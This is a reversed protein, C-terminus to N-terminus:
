PRPSVLGTRRVPRSRETRVRARAADLAGPASAPLRRRVAVARRLVGPQRGHRLGGRGRAARAAPARHPRRSPLEAADAKVCWCDVRRGGPRVLLAGAEGVLWVGLAGRELSSGPAPTCTARRTASSTASCASRPGSPDARRGAPAARVVSAGRAAYLAPIGWAHVVALAAVPFSLPELALAPGRHRSSRCPTRSRPARGPGAARPAAPRRRRAPALLRGRDRPPGAGAAMVDLRRAAMPRGARRRDPPAPHRPGRRPPLERVQEAHGEGTSVIAFYGPDLEARFAAVAAEVAGPDDAAGSPSRPTAPRTWASSDHWTASGARRDARPCADRREVSAWSSASSGASRAATRAARPRACSSASSRRRDGEHQRRPGEGRRGRQGRAGRRRHGGARRRRGDAGLGESEVIAAPDGGEAVLRTSCRAAARRRSRRARRGHRGARGAGAADREVRGPGGRRRDPRAAREVWNAAARGDAGAGAVAEFFDGWQPRLRAAARHRADPGLRARLARRARGAARAARRARRRADGRDARAARPRAGPLLPLRAGGGQLAARCGGARRTSTCRRRCSRSARRSCRSRARSRPTSRRARPLPVLEHEQARDQHRARHQRGAAALRQRRLAALGGGHERRERGLQRLTVRLLELWERAQEASHM